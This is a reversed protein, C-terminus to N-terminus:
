RTRPPQNYKLQCYVLKAAAEDAFQRDLEPGFSIAPPRNAANAASAAPHVPKRASHAQLPSRCNLGGAEARAKM